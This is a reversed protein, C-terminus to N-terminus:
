MNIITVRNGMLFITHREIIKQFFCVFFVKPFTSYNENLCYGNETLKIELYKTSNKNSSSYILRGGADGAPGVM